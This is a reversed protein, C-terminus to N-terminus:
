KSIFKLLKSLGIQSKELLRGFPTYVESTLPIDLYGDKMYKENLKYKESKADKVMTRFKVIKVEKNTSIMRTSIYLIPLGQVLLSVLLVIIFIPSFIIIIIFSIIIDEVRKILRFFM